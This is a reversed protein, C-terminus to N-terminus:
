RSGRDALIQDMGGPSLMRDGLVARARADLDPWGVSARPSQTPSLKAIVRHRRTIEVTEGQQVLELVRRLQQQLERVSVRRMDPMKCSLTAAHLRAM